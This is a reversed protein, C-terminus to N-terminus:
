SAPLSGAGSIANIFGIDEFGVLLTAGANVTGKPNIILNMNGYQITNIPRRRHDFYYSGLPPDDGFAQRAKLAAVNPDYKFLNTFNASQLAWYNIDTGAALTGGNDYIVSTSLFTRFNPYPIPFDQGTLLASLATNKLEYIQSIDIPPLIVGQKGTPLQDLYCQYVTIAVNTLTGTAGSYLALTADGSAAFPTPNITLQLNMTANVVNSYIAGTLDDDSYSVPVYYMMAVTGSAGHAITAPAKVTTWHSGFDSQTDLLSYANGFPARGKATAVMHLHWGATQVRINNNLDNFIVQSLINAPGWETLTATNAGDTNNATATIEILFGKLLGVYRPPINLVNQTAPTVTAAFIQQMMDVSQSLILSRAVANAQQLQAQSMAGGAGGDPAYLARRSLGNMLFERM